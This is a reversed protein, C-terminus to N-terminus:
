GSILAEGLIRASGMVSDRAYVADIELAKRANELETETVGEAAIRNVEEAVIAAIKDLDADPAPTIGFTFRSPGVSVPDFSIYASTAMKEKVVLRRYLRGTRADGLIKVLVTRADSAAITEPRAPDVLIHASWITQKVLPSAKQIVQSKQPPRVPPSVRVDIKRAPIPAYYKKVLPLVEALSLDGSLVLVINNPAYHKDFFA